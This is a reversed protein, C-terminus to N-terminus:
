VWLTIPGGLSEEERGSSPFLVGLSETGKSVFNFEESPPGEEGTSHWSPSKWQLFLSLIFFTRSEQDRCIQGQNDVFNWEELFKHDQLWFVDWPCESPFFFRSVVWTKPWLEDGQGSTFFLRFTYVGSLKANSEM